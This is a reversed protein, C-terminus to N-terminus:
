WYAYISASVSDEAFDYKWDELPILMEELALKQEQSLQDKVSRALSIALPTIHKAM